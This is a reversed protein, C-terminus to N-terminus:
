GGTEGDACEIADALLDRGSLCTRRLGNLTLTYQSAFRSGYTDRM